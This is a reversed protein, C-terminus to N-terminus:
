MTDGVWVIIEMVLVQIYFSKGSVSTFHFVLTQKVCRHEDGEM